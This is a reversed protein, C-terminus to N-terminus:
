NSGHRDRKRDTFYREINPYKHAIRAAAAAAIGAIIDDLFVHIEEDHNNLRTLVGQKNKDLYGFSTLGITGYVNIISLALVEDVGYLPEDLEMITQFPEPLIKQEALQDLSVGTIVAHQVERKKLVTQVSELCEDLTLGPHYPQQLNYVIEAIEELQVGRKKFLEITHEYFM